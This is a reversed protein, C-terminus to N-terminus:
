PIVLEKIPRGKPNVVILKNGKEAEDFAIKALGLAVRVIETMSRGSKRSLTVLDSFVQAPLNINLRKTRAGGKETVLESDEPLGLDQSFDLDESIDSQGTPSASMNM